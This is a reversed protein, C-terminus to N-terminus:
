NNQKYAGVFFIKDTDIQYISHLSQLQQILGITVTVLFNFYFYNGLTFSHVVNIYIYM